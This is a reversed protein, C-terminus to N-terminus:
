IAVSESVSVTCVVFIPTWNCQSGTNCNIVDQGQNTGEEVPQLTEVIHPITFSRTQNPWSSVM